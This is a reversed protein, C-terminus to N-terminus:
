SPTSPKSMEAFPGLHRGTGPDSTVTAPDTTLLVARPLHSTEM